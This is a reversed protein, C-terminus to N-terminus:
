HKCNLTQKPCSDMLRFTSWPPYIIKQYQCCAVFKGLTVTNTTQMLEVLTSIHTLPLASCFRERVKLTSLCVLFLHEEDKVMGLDCSQCLRKIYPVGKWTGLMVDLQSNGCRFRALAKQLQVCSIACLYNESEYSM